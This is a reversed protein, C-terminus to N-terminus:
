SQDGHSPIRRLFDRLRTEEVLRGSARQRAFETADGCLRDYEDRLRGHRYADFMARWTRGVTPALTTNREYAAGGLRIKNEFQAYSRIPVHLILLGAAHAPVTRGALRVAHNGQQVEIGADARHCVKPPLPDGLMTISATDRWVLREHFAQSDRGDASPSEQLNQRAASVALVRTPLAALCDALRTGDDALWFEDADSHVVWDAGLDTAALRAMRTVWAHQAYDDREERIVTALGRRRYRELIAPTADRSLNDTVIFHDVGQARHFEINAELIDEEDRVLLTLVLKM